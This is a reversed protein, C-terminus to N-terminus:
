GAADEEPGEMRTVTIGSAQAAFRAEEAAEILDTSDRGDEGLVAVGVSVALPAGRWAPSERLAAAIRLALAHAGVRGTDRAIVWARTDTECALTDQRRVASRVSQAFHGFISETAAEDEVAAMRDAEDLEALLLSLPAGTRHAREIEDELAGLWLPGGAPAAGVASAARGASASASASAPVSSPVRVPAPVPGSAPGPATSPAAAASIGGGRPTDPDRSIPPEARALPVLRPDPRRDARRLVAARVEEIVLMLREALEAIQDPTPDRLEARIASWLVASLADIARETAELGNAGTLEGVVAALPELAGGEQLRRLDADNALARVLADCLRPGDRALDAALISPMEDLSVQEILALLWGKALDEVSGLLADVPADAV